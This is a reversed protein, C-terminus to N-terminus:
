LFWMSPRDVDGSEKFRLAHSPSSAVVSVELSEKPQPVVLDGCLDQLWRMIQILLTMVTSTAGVRPSFNGYLGAESEDAFGVNLM